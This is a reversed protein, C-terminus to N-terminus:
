EEKSNEKEEKLKESSDLEAHDKKADEQQLEEAIDTWDEESPLEELLM